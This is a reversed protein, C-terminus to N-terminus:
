KKRRGRCRNLGVIGLLFMLGTSPEPVFGIGTLNFTLDGASTNITLLSSFTRIADPSFSLDFSVSPNFGAELTQLSFNDLTFAAPDAGTITFGTVDIESGTVGTNELTIAGTLTKTTGGKVKGFDITSGDAPTSTLEPIGQIELLTINDLFAEAASNQWGRQLGFSPSFRVPGTRLQMQTVNLAITQPSGVQSGNRFYTRTLSGSDDSSDSLTGGDTTIDFRVQLNNWQGPTFSTNVMSQGGPTALGFAQRDLYAGAFVNNAVGAHTPVYIDTDILFSRTKSRGTIVDIETLDANPRRLDVGNGAVVAPSSGATPGSLTGIAPAGGPNFRSHSLYVATGDFSGGGFYTTATTPAISSVHASIYETGMGSNNKYAIDFSGSQQSEGVEGQYFRVPGISADPIGFAGQVQMGTESLANSGSGRTGNNLTYLQTTFETPQVPMAQIASNFFGLLVVSMLSLILNRISM